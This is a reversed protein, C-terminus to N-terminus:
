RHARARAVIPPLLELVHDVQDATTDRGFSFRVAEVAQARPLGLALLVPSPAVTGSTCAAGTSVAVGALDLAQVLTEGLAGAFGANVTNAVRPAGAGHIRVGALERLGAELRGRLAAVRPQAPLGEERALTAATGLGVIGLLNETGPRRGREQHGAPWLPALDIARRVWLAGAGAPGGIKHASIALTDVGLAAADLPLRGAAQVADCHVHAGAAHAAAAIAAVDQITGLEHNALAVAVLAAGGRCAHEVAAAAVRGEADVPITITEFGEAALMGLAGTVAPHEIAPAAVRRPRGAAAAARASGVVGLVDAETGGATFVLEDAAGGVLSAVERRAREVRDRAARGEAHISSPNGAGARAAAEMAAAVRPDLPAGANHDLYTRM